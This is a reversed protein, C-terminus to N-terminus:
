HPFFLRKLLHLHSLQFDMDLLIFQVRKVSSVFTLEFHILSRFILPIFVYAFVYAYIKM